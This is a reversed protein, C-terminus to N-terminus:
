FITSLHRGHNKGNIIRFRMNKSITNNLTRRDCREKEKDWKESSTNQEGGRVTKHCTQTCTKHKAKQHIFLLYIYLRRYIKLDRKNKEKPSFSTHGLFTPRTRFRMNKLVTVHHRCRVARKSISGSHLSMKTCFGM